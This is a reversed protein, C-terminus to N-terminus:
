RCWEWFQRQDPIPLLPYDLVVHLNCMALVYAHCVLRSTTHPGLKSLATAVGSNLAAIKDWDQETVPNLHEIATRARDGRSGAESEYRRAVGFPSQSISVLTGKMGIGSREANEFTSILDRRRPATTANYLVDKDRLLAVLEGLIPVSARRFPRWRMGASANVVILEEPVEGLDTIRLREVRERYGHAWQDAMNDYVGGDALVLYRSRSAAAVEGKRMGLRSRRILRPPFAGPLAASAQVAVALLLTGPNGLGAAYGYVFSKSFYLHSAAQLDTSCLIHKTSDHIDRLLVRPSYLTQRLSRACIHGRLRLLEGWALIAAVFIIAKAALGISLTWPVVCVALLGVALALVYIKTELPAWLTGRSALRSLLPRAVQKEFQDSTTNSLDVQQGVFANTISGGSVSAISEVHAHVDADVLYLLVGLSFAAARHGGGSFALSVRTM